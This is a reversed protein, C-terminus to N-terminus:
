IKGERYNQKVKRIRREEDDSLLRLDFHKIDIWELVPMSKWANLNGNNSTVSSIGLERQKDIMWNAFKRKSDRLPAKLDIELDSANVKSESDALPGFLYFMDLSDIDGLSQKVSQLDFWNKDHEYKGNIRAELEYKFAEKIFHATNENFLYVIIRYKKEWDIPDYFPIEGIVKGDEDFIEKESEEYLEEQSLKSVIRNVWDIFPGKGKKFSDTLRWWWVRTKFFDCDLNGDFQHIAKLYEGTFQKLNPITAM